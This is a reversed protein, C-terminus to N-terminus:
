ISVNREKWNSNSDSFIIEGTNKPDYFDDNFAVSCSEFYINGLYMINLEEIKLAMFRSYWKRGRLIVKFSKQNNIIFDM